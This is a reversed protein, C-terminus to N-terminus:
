RRRFLSRRRDEISTDQSNLIRVVIATVNDASGREIAMAVLGEAAGTPDLGPGNVVQQIESRAVVDWLGDSCLVFTDDVETSQRVLDVQLALAAGLSRTLQSRAPHTAARDPALLKMRVMEAVRSHDNTLQTCSDRRVLYARSDGVHAILAERGIVSLATLTSGMGSRGPEFSATLVASNADRVCARLRKAPDDDGGVSWRGLVTEVASRSAVEGAAHGGLGDAVVFLPGRREQRAPDPVFASAFDENHGRVPGAESCLGWAAGGAIGGARLSGNGTPSTAGETTRRADDTVAM